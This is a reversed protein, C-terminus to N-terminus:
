NEQDQWWAPGGGDVWIVQGTIYSAGACLFLITEAYEEPEGARRLPFSRATKARQAEDRRSPWDSQSVMGPAIGNVRVEPALGAALERTLQLLGAKTVCYVSSSGSGGTSAAGTSLTSVVAGRSAKLYPAAAHTCRFPGILNVNLLKNWFAETQSDLDSPPIPKTTGPTAANNVLYDLGGMAEAAERVMRRADEGDGVDGPAPLVDLGEGRLGDITGALREERVDNLAVRAGMRAFLRATALGIGSAAGTVIARRGALDAYIPM